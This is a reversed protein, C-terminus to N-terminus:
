GEQFTSHYHLFYVFRPAQYYDRVQIMAQMRVRQTWVSSGGQIWADRGALVVYFREESWSDVVILAHIGIKCLGLVSESAGIL